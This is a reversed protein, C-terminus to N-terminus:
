SLVLMAVGVKTKREVCEECSLTPKNRKQKIKVRGDDKDEAKISLPSQPSTTTSGDHHSDYSSRFQDIITHKSTPTSSESTINQPPLLSPHNLTNDDVDM